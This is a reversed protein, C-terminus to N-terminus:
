WMLILSRSPINEERIFKNRLIKQVENNLVEYRESNLLHCRQKLQVLLDVHLKHYVINPDIGEM